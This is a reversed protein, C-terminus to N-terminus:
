VGICDRKKERERLFVGLKACTTTKGAGQLGALLIVAPPQTNLKLPENNNGMLAILEENVIKILAQGPTLSTLVEKTLSRTRIDEIFNRVVPLAVDAELLAVRVDRLGDNIHKETLRGYGRLNSFIDTFKLFDAFITAFITIKWKGSIKSNKKTLIM